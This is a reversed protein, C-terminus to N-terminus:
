TRWWNWLAAVLYRSQLALPYNKWASWQLLNKTLGVSLQLAEAAEKLDMRETMEPDQNKSTPEAM